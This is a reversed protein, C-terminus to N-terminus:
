GNPNGRAVLLAERRRRVAGSRLPAPRKRVTAVISWHGSDRDLRHASDGWSGLVAACGKHRAAKAALRYEHQMYLTTTNNAGGYNDTAPADTTNFLLTGFTIGETLNGSLGVAFYQQIVAESKTGVVYGSIVGPGLGSGIFLGLMGIVLLLAILQATFTKKPKYLESYYRKIKSEHLEKRKKYAYHKTHKIYQVKSIRGELYAKEVKELRRALGAKKTYTRELRKELLSKKKNQSTLRKSRM